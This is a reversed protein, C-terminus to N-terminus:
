QNSIIWARAADLEDFKFAEIEASVFHNVLYEAINGIVSNTVLALYNIKKHHDKVFTLHAHLATFSEWAPFSETLIILGNLQNGKILYDDIINTANKFDRESLKGDVTFTAIANIEDFEIYLMYEGNM